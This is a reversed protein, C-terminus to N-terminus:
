PLIRNVCDEISQLITTAETVYTSVNSDSCHDVKPTLTDVLTVAKHVETEILEPLEVKDVDIQRIIPSLCLISGTTCSKIQALLDDVDGTTADVGRKADNINTDVEGNVGSVCSALEGQSDALARELQPQTLRLCSHISVGAGNAINQMDQISGQIKDAEDRLKVDAAALSEDAYKHHSTSASTLTLKASAIASDVIIRLEELKKLAQDYLTFPVIDSQVPNAVFAAGFHAVVLTCVIQKLM